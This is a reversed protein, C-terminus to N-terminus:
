VAKLKGDSSALYVTSNAADSDPQADLFFRDAWLHIRVRLVKIQLRTHQCNRWRFEIM